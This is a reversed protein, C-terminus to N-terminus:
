DRGALPSRRELLLTDRWRGLWPGHEMKGVRERRGIIRFGLGLQLALSARNEPFVGSQLTWIGLLESTQICHGLLARGLGKGRASAALYISVECVGRYVHRASTPSLVVWGLVKGEQLAVFSCGPVKGGIFADWTDPPKSAFTSHGSDIGEQYIAHIAPWDDPQM